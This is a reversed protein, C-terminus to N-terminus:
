NDVKFVINENELLLLKVLISKVDLLVFFFGVNMM